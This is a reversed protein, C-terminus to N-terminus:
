EVVTNRENETIKAEIKAQAEKVLNFPRYSGVQLVGATKIGVVEGSLNILLTGASVRTQIGTEVISLTKVEREVMEGTESEEKITATEYPLSNVIGNQVVVIDIGGLAIVAQGLKLSTADGSKIPTFTVNEGEPVRVSFLAFGTASDYGEVKLSFQKNGYFIGEFQPEESIVENVLTETNLQAIVKGNDSVIFGSIKESLSQDESDSPLVVTVLSRRNQDVAKIIQDDANVVVTERVVSAQQNGSPTQVVREITREVVRNITQTIPEPAQEMLSVTVIGTAISTVFSVLLAVLVLQQKTLDEM